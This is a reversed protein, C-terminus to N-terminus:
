NKLRKKHYKSIDEKNLQELRNNMLEECNIKKILELYYRSQTMRFDTEYKKKRTLEKIKKINYKDNFIMKLYETTELKSFLTNLKMDNINEIEDATKNNLDEKYYNRINELNM